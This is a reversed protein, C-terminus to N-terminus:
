VVLRMRWRCYLLHSVCVAHVKAVEIAEESEALITEVDELSMESHLRNLEETGARLAKM